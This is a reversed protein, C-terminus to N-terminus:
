PYAPPPPSAIPRPPPFNDAPYIALEVFALGLLRQSAFGSWRADPIQITFENRANPQLLAGDFPFLATQPPAEPGTFTWKGLIVGNLLLTSEQAGFAGSTLALVYDKGAVDVDGLRFLISAKECESVRFPGTDPTKSWGIFLAENKLPLSKLTFPLYMKQYGGIIPHDNNFTERSPPTLQAQAALYTAHRFDVATDSNYEITAGWKYDGLTTDYALLQGMREEEIMCLLRSTALFQAYRWNFLDGWGTFPPVATPEIYNNWRGTNAGYLGQISHIFIGAAGLLLYSAITAKQVTLGLYLRAARWLLITLLVLALVTDTLLRPGFSHGGWWSAAQSAIFLHLTFWGLCLWLLPRWGMRHGLLLLGPILLLFFPSFVFIGRSPSFLHGLIALWVPTRDQQFRAVSYYIPLWQGFALRSWGLFLCLFIFATAATPLFQRWDKLLLYLLVIVIFAAASARSFYALFLLTGLLYPHSSKAMGEEYRVLLFLSLGIFLTSFNITWLATGMTSVFGSGLVSVTTIVLSTSEDFYTRTLGYVIWLVIVCSLAALARQLNFNHKELRMDLGFAKAV